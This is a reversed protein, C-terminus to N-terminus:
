TLSIHQVMDELKQQEDDLKQQLDSIEKHLAALRDEQSDLQKTYRQLLAKEEASGKLAKMNERIRAQTLSFQSAPLHFSGFDHACVVGGRLPFTDVASCLSFAAVPVNKRHLNFSLQNNGLKPGPKCTSTSLM